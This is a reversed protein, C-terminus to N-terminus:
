ADPLCDRQQGRAQVVLVARVLEDDQACVAALLSRFLALPAILQQDWRQKKRRMQESLARVGSCCLLSPWGEAM